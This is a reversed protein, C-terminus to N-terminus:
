KNKDYEPTGGAGTTNITRNKYANIFNKTASAVLVSGLATAFITKNLQKTGSKSQLGGETKRAGQLKLASKTAITAAVGVKLAGKLGERKTYKEKLRATGDENVDYRKRGAPTLTGDDNQYRRIGWRQGKIGHHSLYTKNM